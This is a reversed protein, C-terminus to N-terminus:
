RQRHSRTGAESRNFAASTLDAALFSISYLGMQKASQVVARFSHHNAKQVTCRARVTTRLHIQRLRKSEVPLHEFADPVRRIRNHVAPPGDLSVIVDDM